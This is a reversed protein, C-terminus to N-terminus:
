KKQAKMFTVLAAAHEATVGKEEYAPMFPPKEGKKGKLIIEALEADPKTADFKKEATAGHCAVCKAKYLAAVDENTATRAPVSAILFGAAMISGALVFVLRGSRTSIKMMAEAKEFSILGPILGAGSTLAIITGHFFRWFGLVLAWNSQTTKSL